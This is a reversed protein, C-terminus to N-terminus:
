NENLKELQEQLFKASEVKYEEIDKPDYNLDKM